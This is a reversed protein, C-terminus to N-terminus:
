SLVRPVLRAPDALRRTAEAEIADWCAHWDVGLQRALASVTTDDFTLADTAWCVARSTLKARPPVLDHRETFVGM